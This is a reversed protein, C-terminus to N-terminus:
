LSGRMLDLILPEIALREVANDDLHREGREVQDPPPNRPSELPPELNPQVARNWWPIV